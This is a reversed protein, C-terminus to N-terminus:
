DLQRAYRLLEVTTGTSYHVAEPRPIPSYNPDFASIAPNLFSDWARTIGHADHGQPPPQFFTFVGADAITPRYLKLSSPKEYALIILSDRMTQALGLCARAEDAMDFRLFHFPDESAPDTSWTAWILYESGLLIIKEDDDLPEGAIIKDIFLEAESIETFLSGDYVRLLWGKFYEKDLAKGLLAPSVSSEIEGGEVINGQCELKYVQELNEISGTSNLIITYLLLLMINEPLFRELDMLNPVVIRGTKTSESWSQLTEELVQLEGPDTIYTIARQYSNAPMIIKNFM